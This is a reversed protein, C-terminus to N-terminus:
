MYFGCAFLWLADQNASYGLAEPSGEGATLGDTYLSHNEAFKQLFEKLERTVYCVGDSNCVRYYDTRIFETYDFTAYKQEEEIWVNTLKLFNQGLGVYNARYLTTINYSKIGKTIACTLIPGYGAGYGLRNDGYREENYYHYFGTNTNYRFYSADFIKANRIDSGNKEEYAAADAETRPCADAYYFREGAKPNEATM